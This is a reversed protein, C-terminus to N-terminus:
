ANNRRRWGLGVLGLLGSGLLLASPPVPVSTFNGTVLFVLDNYDQDGYPQSSDGDEFCVIWENSTGVQFILGNVAGSSNLSSQTYKTGTSSGTYHDAFGMTLSSPTSLAIGGAGVPVIQDLGSATPFPSGVLSTSTNGAAFTGPDQTFGAFSAYYSTITYTWTGTPTTAPLLGTGSLTLGSGSAQLGGTATGSNTYATTSLMQDVIAYLNQEGTGGTGGAGGNYPAWIDNITVASASLTLGMLLLALGLVMIVTIKRM